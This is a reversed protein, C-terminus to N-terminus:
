YGQSKCISSFINLYAFPNQGKVFDSVEKYMYKDIIEKSAVRGVFEMRDSNKESLTRTSFTTGAKHWSVVEYVAQITGDFVAFALKVKSAQLENIRWYQRTADYLEQPSMGYRFTQNLKILLSPETINAAEPKYISVIKEISMRGFKNSAHGKIKNSLKSIDILDIISAEVRFATNELDLGHVLIEIRPMYGSRKIDQIRNSKESESDDSLHSFCRNGKGKGVYFIEENRPDVYLYVYYKISEIVSEPFKQMMAM